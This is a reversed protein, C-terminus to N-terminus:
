GLSDSVDKDLKSLMNVRCSVVTKVVTETDM